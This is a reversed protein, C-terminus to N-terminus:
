QFLNTRLRKRTKEPLRSVRSNPLTPTQQTNEKQKPDLTKGPKGQNLAERAIMSTSDAVTPAMRLPSPPTGPSADVRKNWGKSPSRTRKREIFFREWKKRYDPNSIGLVSFGVAIGEKLALRVFKPLSQESKMGGKGRFYTKYEGVRLHLPRETEGILRKGAIKWVYVASRIDRWEPPLDISVDGEENLELKCYKEPSWEAPAAIAPATRDIKIPSKILKAPIEGGRGDALPSGFVISPDGEGRTKNHQAGLQVIASTENQKSTLTSSCVHWIGVWVRQGSKFAQPLTLHSAATKGRFDSLYDSFRSEFNDSRGILVRGDESYWMYIVSGLNTWAPPFKVNPRGDADRTIEIMCEPMHKAPDDITKKTPRSASNPSVIPPLKISRAPAETSSSAVQTEVKHTDPSLDESEEELEDQFLYEEVDSLGLLSNSEDSSSEYESGESSGSASLSSSSSSSPSFDFDRHLDQDIFLPLGISFDEFHSKVAGSVVDSTREYGPNTIDFLNQNLQSNEHAPHASPPEFPSRGWRSASFLDHSLFGM